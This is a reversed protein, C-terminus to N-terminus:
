TLGSAILTARDTRRNLRHHSRRSIDFGAQTVSEQLNVIRRVPFCQSIQFCM